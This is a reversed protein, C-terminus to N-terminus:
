FNSQNLWQWSQNFWNASRTLGVKESHQTPQIVRGCGGRRGQETGERRQRPPHRPQREAAKGRRHRPEIAEHGRRHLQPDLVVVLAARHVAAVLDALELEQEAFRLRAARPPQHREAGDARVVDQGGGDVALLGATIQELLELGASVYGLTGTPSSTM